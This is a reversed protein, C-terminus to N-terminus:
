SGKKDFKEQDLAYQDVVDRVAKLSQHSEADILENGIGVQGDSLAALYSNKSRLHFKEQNFFALFGFFVTQTIYSFCNGTQSKSPDYSRQITEMACLIGCSIMDDKNAVRSFKGSSAYNEAIKKVALAVEHPLQPEPEGNEIAKLRKEYYENLVATIRPGDFYRGRKAM